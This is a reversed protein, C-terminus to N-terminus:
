EGPVEGAQGVVHPAGPIVVVELRLDGGDKGTVRNEVVRRGWREPHRRELYTMAAQWNPDQPDFAVKLVTAVAQTEADAEARKFSEAFAAYPEKGESGKQLWTYLTDECIGARQCATIAYGGGRMTQLITEQLEPTLKTKRPM